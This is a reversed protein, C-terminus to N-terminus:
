IIKNSKKLNDEGWLPQLNSLANVVSPHAGVDFRSVPYIHDIHWDGHNEWTMGEVFLTSIYIKLELASYGLLKDTTGEKKRGMRSLCNNLLGRWKDYITLKRTLRRQKKGKESKNYSTIATIRNQSQNRLRDYEKLETSKTNRYNKQYETVKGVNNQFYTKKREKIGEPNADRYVKVKACIKVKNALYYQRNMEKKEEPTM